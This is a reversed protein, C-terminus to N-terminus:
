LDDDRFVYRMGEVTVDPPRRTNEFFAYGERLNEWFTYHASREHRRMNARNMRFPFIHVRFFPQGGNLAQDAITYIEEILPDTM